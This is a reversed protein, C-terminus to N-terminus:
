DSDSEEKKRLRRNEEEIKNVTQQIKDLRDDLAKVHILAGENLADKESGFVSTGLEKQKEELDNLRGHIWVMMAILAGLLPAVINSLAGLAEWISVNSTEASLAAFEIPVSGTVLAILGAIVIMLGTAIEKM